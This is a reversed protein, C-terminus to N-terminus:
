NGSLDPNGSRQLRSLKDPNPKLAESNDFFSSTECGDTLIETFRPSLIVL